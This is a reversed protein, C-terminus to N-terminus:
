DLGFVCVELVNFVFDFIIGVYVIDYVKKGRLILIVFLYCNESKMYDKKRLSKVIFFILINIFCRLICNVGVFKKELISINWIM